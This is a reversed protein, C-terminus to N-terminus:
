AAEQPDDETRGFPLALFAVVLALGLAVLHLTMGPRRLTVELEHEGAPLALSRGDVELPEGDVSVRAEREWGDGEAVLLETGEPVDVRTATRAHPGDADVRDVAVGEADVLRLRGPNDEAVRWLVQGAPSSVRTLGTVRDVAGAAPDDEGARLLVYGAGLETVAAGVEDADAGDLLADVAAVAPGDTDATHLETTRDRVIRAPDPEAGVLDVLVVGDAAPSPELVLTRLAYPGRAQEAAVAPLAPEGLSLSDTPPDFAGVVGLAAVPVTLVVVAALLGAVRGRGGRGAGSEQGATTEGDGGNDDDGGKDDDGDDDRDGLEAEEARRTLLADVLLADALLLAAGSLSLLTGPWATVVLGAEERLAPLAGLGVRTALLALAVGGLASGVLLAARHGRRGPLLLAGLAGAWLPVTLWLPVAELSAVDLGAGPHLLLVQWPEHAAPLSPSAQTAGAGGLLRVPDAALAPLWPLMLGWPVLALVAGRWRAGGRGLVLVALGGLTAALLVLPVWQAAVAVGLVTAFVAATRRPGGRPVASVAYGALLLPALVHVVVPGVRGDAVAAALPALGGWGLALLARVWRHRTARRLSSYATLVSAPGALLLLGALAPAADTAGAGPLTQVLLALGAAPLLWSEPPGSHGLGGGRWGDLASSWLGRADTAAVGLEPAVVGLSGPRLGPLLDRWVWATVALALLLSVALPWSWVGRRGSGEGLDAFEDSVPGSEASGRARSSAESRATARARPDLAEGVTDLTTRWGTGAPGHLGALDKPRVTRRRRFRRRASWARGPSLVARVDAWEAAAAAPRKVLLLLLAALTSTVLVGLARRHSGWFSGRALAVQRERVRTRLPDVVGLGESGQRVVAEPAVVVRHGALHARWSLDLGDVGDEGFAPDLGGVADLVPSGVLAGALPVGLTDQRQDLQGQDVLATRGTDTSRGAPTLHHGLSRLLRPDDDRVLKPGVIGVRSSRRVAAVLASLAGPEPRSDPTLFWIWHSPHVPLTGRADEVLQWRAGGGPRAPRLLLPVRREVAIPHRLVRDVDEAAPDLGALLVRTPTRTQAGLSDLTAVLQDLQGDPACLLVVTVDDVAARDARAAVARRSTSTM